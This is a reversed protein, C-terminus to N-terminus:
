YTQFEKWSESQYVVMKAGPGATFKLPQSAPKDRVTTMSNLFALMSGLQQAFVTDIESDPLVFGRPDGFEPELEVTIAIAQSLNEVVFDLMGGPVLSQAQPVGWLTQYLKGASLVQYPRSSDKSDVITKLDNAIEEQKGDPPPDTRGAWPFLICRGHSHYDLTGKFKTKLILQQMAIVEKAYGTTPGRYSDSAPDDSFAGPSGKTLAHWATTDYNRNPDVSERTADTPFNKRWLRDVLVSQEHGDPNVMPVIWIDAGDVIRKVKPDSSYKNILFDALLFPMEVSIWERAHHCGAVLIPVSPDRGIRIAHINKGQESMGISTINTDVIGAPAKARLDAFDDKISRFDVTISKKDADVSSHPGAIESRHYNAM